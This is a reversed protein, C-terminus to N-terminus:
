QVMNIGKNSSNNLYLILGKLLRSVETALLYMDQFENENIYKRDLARYLQSKVEACSAKAIYLFQLFAKNGGREFGEAINDM